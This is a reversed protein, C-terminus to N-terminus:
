LQALDAPLPLGERILVARVYALIALKVESLEVKEVLDGTQDSLKMMGKVLAVGAAATQKRVDVALGPYHIRLITETAELIEHHIRQTVDVELFLARFGQHSDTFRALNDVWQEMIASIPQAPDIALVSEYLASLYREVLANMLAVKNPFFQYLSGIAIGAQAAIMNTTTAEYGVEDFLKAAMDLLQNVRQQSREQKPKRRMETM